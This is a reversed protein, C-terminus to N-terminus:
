SKVKILPIQSKVFESMENKNIVTDFRINKNELETIQPQPKIGSVLELQRIIEFEDEISVNQLAGLVNKAFKYPSATSDIVTLTNDGTDKIYKDYVGMAVATHTDALYEKDEFVSKIVEATEVDDCYGGYFVSQLLKLGKDDLCYNGKQALDDMLSNLKGSDEGSIYYVLRELNSSIIIDMSPSATTYFNRKKDYVGTSIFDSLINNKNSACILKNVPLGMEMAIYAALINGFNGTPVTFNIKEELSKIKGQRYVEFYSYFYYVVQPLLRGFNISNASSFFMGNENLLKKIAEDTFIEKIGTQTDDFNGKVACVNVNDGEQTAMQLKQMPSVGDEPYFVIVETGDVNKFGELAAKGTDGSTAVLIVAKKDPAQKKLSIALLYPLIQLAMDKFASTPGHWLELMVVNSDKIPALVAPQNNEFKGSNYASDVCYNIEEDTFDTLYLSFIKKALSIYDMQALSNIESKIYPISEPIFLGGEDSIGQTIVRSAEYRLNSNRTSKYRM